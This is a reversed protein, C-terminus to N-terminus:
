KCKFQNTYTTNKSNVEPQACTNAVHTKLTHSIRTIRLRQWRQDSKNIKKKEIKQKASLVLTAWHFHQLSVSCFCYFCLALAPWFLAASSFVFVLSCEVSARLANQTVRERVCVYNKVQNFKRGRKKRTTPMHTRFFLNCVGLLCWWKYVVHQMVSCWIWEATIQAFNHIHSHFCCCCCCCRRLPLVSASCADVIFNACITNWLSQM